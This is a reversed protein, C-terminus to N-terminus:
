FPESSSDYERRKTTRSSRGSSKKGGSKKSSGGGGEKKDRRVDGIEQFKLSVAVDQARIKLSVKEVGDDNEWSELELQGIVLINNGKGLDSVHEALKGWCNVKYFTTEEEWEDTSRNKWSRNSAIGLDCVADGGPTFRLEPDRTLNGSVTIFSGNM